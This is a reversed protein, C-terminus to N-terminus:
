NSGATEDAVPATTEAGRGSTVREWASFIGQPTLPQPATLVGAFLLVIGLILTIAAGRPPQTQMLQVIAYIVSIVCLVVGALLLYDSYQSM